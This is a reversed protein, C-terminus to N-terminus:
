EDSLYMPSINKGDTNVNNEQLTEMYDPNNNKVKEQTKQTVKNTNKALILYKQAADDKAKNKEQM